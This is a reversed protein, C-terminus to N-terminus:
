ADARWARYSRRLVRHRAGRAEREALSLRLPSRPKTRSKPVGAGGLLRQISKISCGVARAAQEFTKGGRIRRQLEARETETLRKGQRM